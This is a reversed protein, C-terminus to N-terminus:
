HGPLRVPDGWSLGNIKDAGNGKTRSHVACWQELWRQRSSSAGLSNIAIAVFRSSDGTWSIKQQKVSVYEELRHLCPMWYISLFGSSTSLFFTQGGKEFCSSYIFSFVFKCIFSQIFSHIFHRVFSRPFLRTFSSIISHNVFGIM